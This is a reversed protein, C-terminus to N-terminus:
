RPFFPGPRLALDKRFTLRTDGGLLSMHFRPLVLPILVMSEFSLM